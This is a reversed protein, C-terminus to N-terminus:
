SYVEIYKAYANLVDRKKRVSIAVAVGNDLIVSYKDFDRIKALNVIYGQHIQYFGAPKLSNYAEFLTGTTSISETITHYIIQGRCSEVYYLDDIPIRIAKNQIKVIHYQHLLNFKQVAKKLIPTAKELSCPKLIYHFAECDFAEIAYQPHNTIFIIIINKCKERLVIGTEIGNIGPMDIDLLVMDFLAGTSVANILDDGSCFVKINLDNNSFFNECLLKLQDADKIIDDCIAIRM